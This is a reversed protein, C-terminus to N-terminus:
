LTLGQSCRVNGTGSKVNVAQTGGGGLAFGQGWAINEPNASWETSSWYLAVASPVLSIAWEDLVGGLQSLSYLSSIGLFPIKPTASFEACSALEATKAASTTGNFNKFISGGLECIAPLYWQGTGAADGNKSQYCLGAAYTDTSTSSYQTYIAISNCQGNTAGYCLEEPTSDETIGVINTNDPAWEILNQSSTQNINDVVYATANSVHYVYYYDTGNTTRLSVLAIRSVTNNNSDVVDLATPAFANASSASFILTCLGGAPVSACTSASVGQPLNNVHVNTATM